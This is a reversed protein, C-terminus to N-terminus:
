TFPCAKLISGGAVGVGLDERDRMLMALSWIGSVSSRFWASGVMEWYSALIQAPDFLVWDESGMLEKHGWWDSKNEVLCQILQQVFFPGDKHDLSELEINLSKM